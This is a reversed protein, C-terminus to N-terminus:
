PGFSKIDQVLLKVGSANRYGNTTRTINVLWTQAATQTNVIMHHGSLKKSLNDVTM